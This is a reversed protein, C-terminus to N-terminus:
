WAPLSLLVTAIDSPRADDYGMPKGCGGCIPVQGGQNEAAEDVKRQLAERMQPRFAAEVEREMQMFPTAGEALVPRSVGESNRKRGELKESAIPISQKGPASMWGVIVFRLENTWELKM